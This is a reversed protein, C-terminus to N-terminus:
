KREGGQNIYKSKYNRNGRIFLLFLIVLVSGIFLILGANVRRFFNAFLGQYEEKPLTTQEDSVFQNVTQGNLVLRGESYDINQTQTHVNFTYQEDYNQGFNFESNKILALTIAEEKSDTPFDIALSLPMPFVYDSYQSNKLWQIDELNELALSYFATTYTEARNDQARYHINEQSPNEELIITESYALADARYQTDQNWYGPTSLGVPYLNNSVLLSIQEEMIGQLAHGDNLDASNVAPVSLFLLGSSQAKSLIDTFIRYTLLNNNRQTSTSSLTYYLAMQNVTDIFSDAVEMDNLPTFNKFTLMPRYSASEGLWQRIMEASQLFIAGKTDYMPLFGNNGQIVGFSYNKEELEQSKLTGFSTGTTTDLVLTQDQYDLQQQYQEEQNVLTYQRHSLQRFSGDFTRAEDPLIEMGIHLKKGSFATRDEIFPESRLGKESWNVFSIVGAYVKEQLTGKLYDNEQVSDVQVGMSTLLRQLSDVKKDGSSALNLSDYVLLVRQTEAAESQSSFLVIGMFLSFLLVLIKKMCGAEKRGVM